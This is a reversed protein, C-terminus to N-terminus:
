KHSLDSPPSCVVYRHCLTADLVLYNCNCVALPPLDNLVHAALADFTRQPGALLIVLLPPFSLTILHWGLALGAVYRTRVILTPYDALQM